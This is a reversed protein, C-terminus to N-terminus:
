LTTATATITAEYTGNAQNHTSGVEAQFDVTVDDGSGSSQVDRHAVQIRNAGNFGLFNTGSSFSADSYAGSSSFGFESDSNVINWSEPTGPSDETYDDFSNLGSQLAPSTSDSVEM